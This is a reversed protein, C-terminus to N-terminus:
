AVGEEFLGLPAVIAPAQRDDTAFPLRQVRQAAQIRARAIPLYEETLEIGVFRAGELV